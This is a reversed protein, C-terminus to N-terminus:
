RPSATSADASTEVDAAVDAAAASTVNVPAAADEAPVYKFTGGNREAIDRMFREGEADGFCVSHITVKRRNLETVRQIVRHKFRGDTLFYIVDPELRLALLLAQEPETMGRAKFGAMWRLFRPKNEPFADELHDSPMPHADDNFFVIFFKQDISMQSVCQLIELKVRGFMTKGPGDFPRNMSGSADVVFVFRQGRAKVGFFTGGSGGSGDGVGDGVGNGLGAGDHPGNGRGALPRVKDTLRVSGALMALDDLPSETVSVFPQVTGSVPSVVFIDSRRSSGGPDSSPDDLGLPAPQLDDHTAVSQSFSTEVIAVSVDPDGGIALLGLVAVAVLHVATSVSLAECWQRNGLRRRPSADSKRWWASM